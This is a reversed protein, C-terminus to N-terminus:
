LAKLTFGRELYYDITAELSGKVNEFAKQSDHLVILDGSKANETINKFCVEPSSAEWDYAVTRYMIIQFGLDKLKYAQARKIKGYPPRFLPFQPSANETSEQVASMIEEAQLTDEIYNKTETKWGKLHHYTHNGVSHGEAIIRKFIEPHKRVNDGICFFTAKVRKRSLTDLVWPTVEPVPGDDFTVYLIKEDKQVPKDWVYWRPHLWKIFSPVRIPLKIFV